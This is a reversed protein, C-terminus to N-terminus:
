SALFDYYLVDHSDTPSVVKHLENYHYYNGTSTSVLFVSNYDYKDHVGDLYTIIEDQNFSNERSLWDKVFSDSAMTTSIYIPKTLENNIESYVGMASLESISRTSTKVITSYSQYTIISTIIAGFLVIFSIILSIRWSKTMFSVGGTIIM